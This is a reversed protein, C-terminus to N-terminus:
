AARRIKFRAPLTFSTALLFVCSENSFYSYEDFHHNLKRNPLAVTRSVFPSVANRKRGVANTDTTNVSCTVNWLQLLRPRYKLFQVLPWYHSHILRMLSIVDTWQNGAAAPFACSFSESLCSDAPTVALKRSIVRPVLRVFLRGMTLLYM